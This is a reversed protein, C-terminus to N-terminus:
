VIDRWWICSCNSFSISAPNTAILGHEKYLLIPLFSRWLLGYMIQMIPMTHYPLAITQSSRGQNDYTVNPDVLLHYHTCIIHHHSVHRLSDIYTYISILHVLVQRYYWILHISTTYLWILIEYMLKTNRITMYGHTELRM